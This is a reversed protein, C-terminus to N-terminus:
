GALKVLNAFLADALANKGLREFIDFQCFIIKGKNFPMVAVDAGWRIKTKAGPVTNFNLSGALVEAKEPLHDLSWLPQVEAFTSDLLGPAPMDKFLPSQKLYHYNGMPGGASRICGIDLGLAKLSNIKKVDEETLAGFVLTAGQSAREVAKKLTAEAVEHLGTVFTIPSEEATSYSVADPFTGLLSVKKLIADLKVEAPVFFVEETRALEKNNRTLILEFTFRGREFGVPFKLRGVNNFGPRAKGSLSEQHLTRGNAGKVKFQVAYDGLHAENFLHVKVAASSGAYPTREEAEAFIHVPRNVTKLTERLAAKPQRMWDNLGTFRVGQDTGNEIFYGSIQTNTFMSEIQRALSVRGLADADAFFAEPTKWFTLGKEKLGTELEQLFKSLDKYDQSGSFKKASELLERPNGFVPVGLGDVLIKGAVSDKLYSYREWFSKNGHVGDAVSKSVKSSCYNSVMAYSRAALPYGLRIKHGEFPVIQASVPEYIKGLDVKGGGQNDLYVSGLNSFVPRTPDLDATFRLLKNGNELALSGNKSGVVWGFVCPHHGDREVLGQLQAKIWDVGDKSSKQNYATTEQLVMLGIEDCIDLVQPPLPAGASRILNFGTDKLDILEKRIDVPFAPLGHHFNFFWPYSVGRVKFSAHNLRFTGKDVEVSRMGFRVKVTPSGPIRVQLNYLIPTAPSWVKGAELQLSLLYSGNEKDLRINKILTGTEGEPNTIDFAAETQFSKSNWFRMELTVRDAEFDPLVNISRVIAKQATHLEVPGLLGAYAGKQFPNGLPLEQAELEGLKGQKDVTQVRIALLNNDTYRVAKADMDFPVHGFARTGLEEGNLWVTYHPHASHVRLLFRKVTDKKELPFEKFYFGVSAGEPNAEHIFLHPLVVKRTTDPKLRFWQDTVGVNAADFCFEWGEEFRIIDAMSIRPGAERRVRM